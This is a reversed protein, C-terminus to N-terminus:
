GGFELVGIGILGGGSAGSSGFHLFYFAAGRRGVDGVGLCRFAEDFLPGNVATSRPIQSVPLNSTLSNALSPLFDALAGAAGTDRSSDKQSPSTDEVNGETQGVVFTVGCVYALAVTVFSFNMYKALIMSDALNDCIKSRHLVM